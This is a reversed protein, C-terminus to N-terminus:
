CSLAADCSSGFTESSAPTRPTGNRVSIASRINDTINIVSLEKKQIIKRTTIHPSRPDRSKEAHRRQSSPLRTWSLVTASCRRGVLSPASWPRRLLFVSTGTAPQVALLHEKGPLAATAENLEHPTSPPLVSASKETLNEKSCCHEM